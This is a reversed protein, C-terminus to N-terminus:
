DYEMPQLFRSARALPKGKHIVSARICPKCYGILPGKKMKIEGDKKIIELGNKDLKPIFKYIRDDGDELIETILYNKNKFSVKDGAKLRKKILM